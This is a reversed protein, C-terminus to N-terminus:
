QQSHQAAGAQAPHQRAKRSSRMCIEAAAQMPIDLQASEGQLGEGGSGPCYRPWHGQLWWDSPVRPRCGAAGAACCEAVTLLLAATCLM